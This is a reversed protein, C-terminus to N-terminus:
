PRTVTRNDAGQDAFLYRDITVAGRGFLEPLRARWSATRASIDDVIHKPVTWAAEQVRPTECAVTSLIIDGTPESARVRLRQDASRLSAHERLCALKICEVIGDDLGADWIQLKERLEDLDFVVRVRFQRAVDHLIAPGNTMYLDFLELARAEVAGWEGLQDPRAVHVWHGREFDTYTVERQVDIHVGCTNCRAVHLEGRLVQARVQPVRKAHIGRALTATLQATCAPCVFEQSYWISM